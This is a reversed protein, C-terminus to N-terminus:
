STRHVEYGLEIIENKICNETLGAPDFIVEVEGTKASATTKEAGIDSLANIVARECHACSMGSVKLIIKKM